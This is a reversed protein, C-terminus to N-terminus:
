GKLGEFFIKPALLLHDDTDPAINLGEFFIKLAPLLHHDSRPFTINLDDVLKSSRVAFIM